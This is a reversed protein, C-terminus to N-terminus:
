PAPTFGSTPLWCKCDLSWRVQRTSDPADFKGPRFSGRDGFPLPFEGLNQLAQSFSDRTPNPGAAAMGRAFLNTIGCAWVVNTYVITRRDVTEGTRQEYGQRCRADHAPEAQGKRAEGTRFATYGISGDFSDPMAITYIDTAGSAFDSLLYQPRWRQNNAEQAFVTARILGSAVIITDVGAGRMRQVELPIQSQAAGVDNAIRSHYAVDYGAAELAPLLSRDVPIADVGEQDLVGITKGELLGDRHLSDVLNTLTRDKSTSISFYNGNSRAYYDDPESASAVLPTDHQETICLIPEGYFGALVAFVKKEETLYICAARMADADGAAYTRYEAVVQRGNIGGAENVADIAAQYQKRFDGVTEGFKVGGETDGMASADPVPVGVTIIDASIGIDSATRAEGPSSGGGVGDGSSGPVGDAGGGATTTTTGDGATTTTTTAAPLDPAGRGPSLNSGTGLVQDSAPDAVLFPILLGVTLIAIGVGALVGYTNRRTPGRLVPARSAM